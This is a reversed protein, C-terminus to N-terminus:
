KRRKFRVVESRGRDAVYVLSDDAAIAVPDAIPQGSNEVNVIQVYSGDPAYRLTRRTGSDAIYSYGELDVAVDVPGDFPQGSDAGDIFYEGSSLSHDNLKQVWNKGFDAAFLAGGGASTWFLGRPDVVTGIGSGEDIRFETDRHWNAGPMNRDNVGPSVPGRVYKFVRYQTTRTRLSPDTPDSILVVSTGSVFVDGQANAAVGSVWTMTTDTFTSLTDGGLLSYEKVRWTWKLRSVKSGWGACTGGSPDGGHAICSDGRDLVFVRGGGSCLAIPNFLQLFDIGAIPTPRTLAYSVVSGRPTTDVGTGSNFLLFLQSGSGQTLLLDQIGNMDPWTALLQYSKDSPYVRGKAVESPLKMSVGCGAALAALALASLVPRVRM